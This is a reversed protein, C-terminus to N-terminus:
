GCTPDDAPCPVISLLYEGSRAAGGSVFTDLVLHYTGPELTAEIIQHHRALCGAESATEDLLHLDIDTTGRDHVTARLRTRTQITLRYVVEPGSEDQPANCGTYRDLEQSPAATTSALDHFPLADIVLPDDVTGLGPLRPGPPDLPEGDLVAAELRSLLTLMQLNRMNYGYQLGSTTLRCAGEPALSSHLGDGGLGHNPLPEYALYLDVLPVQRGQALAAIVGNYTTVWRDASPSDLRHLITALTPVVGWALLDDVLTWLNDVFPFLAAEYTAGLGMDNTGYHVLAYRPSLALYEAELPPPDGDLAWRASVGSKAALSSRAFPDTGAADGGKFFDLTSALHTHAGLDVNATSFCKFFSASVTTSAGVKMFVDDRLAPDVAAIAQLRAVLSPTIPSHVRDPPYRAPHLAPGADTASTDTSDIVDTADIPDIADIPDTADTADPSADTSSADSANTNDDPPTTDAPTADDITDPSSAATAATALQHRDIASRLHTPDDDCAALALCIVVLRPVHLPV